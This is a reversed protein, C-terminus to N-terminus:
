GSTTDIFFFPIVCWCGIELPNIVLSQTTGWLVVFWYNTSKRDNSFLFPAAQAPIPPQVIACPICITILNLAIMNRSVNYISIRNHYLLMLYNSTSDVAVPITSVSPTKVCNRAAPSMQYLQGDNSCTLDVATSPM